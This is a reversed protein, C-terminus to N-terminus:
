YLGAIHSDTVDAIPLDFAVKGHTIGVVRDAFKRVLDISHTAIVTTKGSDLLLRWTLERAVPDLAAEPEDALIVQPNQLLIQALYTKALQGSSVTTVSQDLLEGLNLSNVLESPVEDLTGRHFGGWSIVERVSYPFLASAEPRLVGRLAARQKASVEKLSQSALRVDGSALDVDGAIARLLTSKGSGNAGILCTISGIECRLNINDLILSQSLVVRVDNAVVDFQAPDTM